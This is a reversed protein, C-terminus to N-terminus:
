TRGERTANIFADYIARNREDEMAEPHWQVGLFFPGSADEIVEVLGDTAVGSAVLGEGVKRVAQHHTSNVGLAAEGM